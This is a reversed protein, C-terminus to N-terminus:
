IYRENNGVVNRQKNKKKREQKRKQENKVIKERQIKNRQQNIILEYNAKTESDIFHLTLNIIM